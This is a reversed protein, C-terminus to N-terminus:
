TENWTRGCVRGALATTEVGDELAIQGNVLVYRIGEPDRTPDEYTARDIIREPDFAVISARGGARILGQDTLRLRRAPAGTMRRIADAWSTCGRERVYRGLARPFTGHLRPHPKTGRIGDTSFTQFPLRLYREVVAESQSHVIMTVKLGEDLLLDFLGDAPEKGRLRAWQAVSKGVADQNAATVVTAIVIGDYTATGVTSSWSGRGPGEMEERMRAREAPDALRGLTQAPGGAHAWPPLCAGLVTCGAAYPYQDVTVDQGARIAQEILAVQEEAKSFNDRGIVKFHSIHIPCGSARGLDLM